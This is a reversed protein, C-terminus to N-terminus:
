ALVEGFAAFASAFDARTIVLRRIRGRQGLSDRLGVPTELMSM